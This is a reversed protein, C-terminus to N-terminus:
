REVEVKRNQLFGVRHRPLQKQCQSLRYVERFCKIKCPKSKVIAQKLFLIMVTTM